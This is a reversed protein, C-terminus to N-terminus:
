KLRSLYPTKLVQMVIKLVDFEDYEWDIGEDSLDSELKIGCKFWGNRKDNVKLLSYYHSCGKKRKTILRGYIDVM